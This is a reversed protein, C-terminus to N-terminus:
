TLKSECSVSYRRTQMEVTRKELAVISAEFAVTRKQRMWRKQEFTGTRKKFPFWSKQISTVM